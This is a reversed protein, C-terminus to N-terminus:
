RNSVTFSFNGVAHPPYGKLLPSMIKQTLSLGIKGSVIQFGADIVPHITHDTKYPATENHTQRYYDPKGAFVGGDVFANYATVYLGPRAVAYIQFRHPKNERPSGNQSLFGDYYPDMKGIRILGYVNAADEMTGVKLAAGGSLELWRGQQWLLKEGTISLNLLLDTPMQHDWGMPLQYNIWRHIGEQTEAAYSFPGSIGASVETQINIKRVPDSSYVSHIAFLGGAYPYDNVPPDIKKIDDPTFAVQMLSWGFTNVANSGAKPMWRDLFFRSRHDKTYFYDLRMGGTYENDTGKGAFNIFDNDYYFRFMHGYSSREQAHVVSFFGAAAFAM